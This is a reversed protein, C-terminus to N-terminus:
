KHTINFSGNTITTTQSGNNVTYNFTGIITNGNHSTINVSGSTLVQNQHNETGAGYGSETTLNHTGLTANKPFHFSYVGLDSTANTNFGFLNIISSNSNQSIMLFKGDDTNNDMSFINGGNKSVAMTGNLYFNDSMFSIDNIEGSAIPIYTSGDSKVAKASFTASFKGTIYDISTITLTFTGTGDKSSFFRSNDAYSFMGISNRTYNHVGITLDTIPIHITTITGNKKSAKIQLMHASGGFGYNIISLNAKTVSWKSGGPGLYFLLESKKPTEDSSSCSFFLLSSFFLSLFLLTPKM